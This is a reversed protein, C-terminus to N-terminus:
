VTQWRGLPSPQDSLMVADLPTPDYHFQRRFYEFIQDPVPEETRFDRFAVTISRTLAAENPDAKVARICRFGNAATRDLSAQAYGDVFAYNPDSWGGGLIFRHGPRDIPNLIWERVNGALDHVGFRNVSRTSGVPVTGRGSFNALPAIQGSTNTFAV